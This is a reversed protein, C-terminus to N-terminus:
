AHKWLDEGNRNVELFVTRAYEHMNGNIKGM